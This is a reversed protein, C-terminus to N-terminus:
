CSCEFSPIMGVVLFCVFAVLITQTLPSRYAPLTFPGIKYDKALEGHAVNPVLGSEVDAKMEHDQLGVDAEVNSDNEM